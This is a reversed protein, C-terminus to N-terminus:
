CCRHLNKSQEYLDDFEDLFDLDNDFVNSEIYMYMNGLEFDKADAEIVVYPSSSNLLYNTGYNKSIGGLFANCGVHSQHIIHAAMRSTSTM